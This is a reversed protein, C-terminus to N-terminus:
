AAPSCVRSRSGTSSAQAPSTSPGKTRERSLESRTPTRSPCSPKQTRAYRNLGLKTMRRNAAPQSTHGGAPTSPTAPTAQTTQGTNTSDSCGLALACLTLLLPLRLM